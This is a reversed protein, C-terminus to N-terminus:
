WDMCVRVSICHKVISSDFPVTHKRMGPPQQRLPMRGRGSPLLCQACIGGARDDAGFPIRCGSAVHSMSPTTLFANMAFVPRSRAEISMSIEPQTYIKLSSSPLLVHPRHNDTKLPVHHRRSECTCCLRMGCKQLPGGLAYQM